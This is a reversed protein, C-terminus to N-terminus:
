VFRTKKSYGASALRAAGIVLCIAGAQWYGAQPRTLDTAVSQSLAKGSMPRFLTWGAVYKFPQGAQRELVWFIADRGPHILEQFIQWGGEAPDFLM